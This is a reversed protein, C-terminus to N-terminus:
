TQRIAPFGRYVGRAATGSSPSPVTAASPYRPRAPKCTCGGHQRMPRVRGSRGSPLGRTSIGWFTSATTTSAASLWTAAPWCQARGGCAPAHRASERALKSSRGCRGTPGITFGPSPSVTSPTRWLGYPGGRDSTSCCAVFVRLPSDRRDRLVVLRHINDVVREFRLPPRIWEFEEKTAGDLSIKIEDLERAWAENLLSGNSFIKVKRIGQRKAYAIREPLSRDLLPEGFNHLQVERCRNEACEDIVRRYLADSMTQLPRTMSRHPCISCRANCRNTTEVRVVPPFRRRAIQLCSGIAYCTLKSLASTLAGM